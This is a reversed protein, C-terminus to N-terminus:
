FRISRVTRKAWDNRGQGVDRRNVNREIDDVDRRAIADYLNPWKEKNLGGIVNYQIDLLVEKLPNPLSDFDAFQSRLHALDNKMHKYAMDYADQDSLRLNTQDEFFTALKDKHLYAGNFDKQNSLERLIKYAALKKAETAPCGNVMFNVKMFDSLNDVNAGGGVTIYGKTDLYPYYIVDEYKKINKWMKNYLEEDSISNSNLSPNTNLNLKQNVNNAGDFLTNQAYQGGQNLSQNMNGINSAINSLGFGYNNASNGWFNAGYQPFNETIGQTKYQNMLENERQQRAFQYELEDRTTFGRHNVGYSDIQNANNYYGLPSKYKGFFDM